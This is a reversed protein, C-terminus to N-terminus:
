DMQLYLLEIFTILKKDTYIIIGYLNFYIVLYYLQYSKLYNCIIDFFYYEPTVKNHLM